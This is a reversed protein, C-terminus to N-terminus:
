DVSRRKFDGARKNKHKLLDTMYYLVFAAGVICSAFVSPLTRILAPEVCLIFMMICFMLLSVVLAVIDEKKYSRGYQISSKITRITTLINRFCWVSLGVILYTILDVIEVNM